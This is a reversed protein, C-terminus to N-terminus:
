RMEKKDRVTWNHGVLLNFCEKCLPHDTPDSVIEDLLVFEQCEWCQLLENDGVWINHPTNVM